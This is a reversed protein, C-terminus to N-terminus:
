FIIQVMYLNFIKKNKKLLSFQLVELTASAPNSHVTFQSPIGTQSLYQDKISTTHGSKRNTCYGKNDVKDMKPCM